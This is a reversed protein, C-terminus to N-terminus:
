KQQYDTVKLIIFFKIIEWCNVTLLIPRSHAIVVGKRNKRQFMQIQAYLANQCLIRKSNFLELGNHCRGAKPSYNCPHWFPAPKFKWVHITMLIHANGQWNTIYFTNYANKHRFCIIATKLTVTIRHGSEDSRLLKRFIAGTVAEDFADITPVTATTM